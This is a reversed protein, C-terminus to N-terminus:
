LCVRDQRLKRPTPTGYRHIEWGCAHRSAPYCVTQLWFGSRQALPVGSRRSLSARPTSSTGLLKQQHLDRCLYPTPPPRHPTCAAPQQSHVSRHCCLSLRRPRDRRPVAHEAPKLHCMDKDKRGVLLRSASCSARAALRTARSAAQEGLRASKGREEDCAVFEM